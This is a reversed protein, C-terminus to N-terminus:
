KKGGGDSRGKGRKEKKTKMKKMERKVTRVRNKERECM